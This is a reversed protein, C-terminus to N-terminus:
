RGPLDATATRWAAELATPDARVLGIRCGAADHAIGEANWHRIAEALLPGPLTGNSRVVRWWPVSPGWRSMARGVTRANTGVIGAITGYTTARGPPVLEVARLILEVRLDSTM